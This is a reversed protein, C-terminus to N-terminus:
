IYILTVFKMAAHLMNKIYFAHRYLLFGRTKPVNLNSNFTLPLKFADSGKVMWDVDKQVLTLCTCGNVELSVHVTREKWAFIEDEVDM